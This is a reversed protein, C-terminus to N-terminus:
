AYQKKRDIKLEPFQEAFRVLNRYVEPELSVRNDPDTHGNTHLILQHGDYHCHLCDGLYADFGEKESM